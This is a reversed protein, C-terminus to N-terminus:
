KCEEMEVCVCVCVCVCVYIYIYRGQHLFSKSMRYVKQATLSDDEGACFLECLM